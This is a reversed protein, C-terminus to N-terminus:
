LDFCKPYTLLSLIDKLCDKWLEKILFYSGDIEFPALIGLVNAQISDLRGYFNPDGLSSIYPYGSTKATQELRKLLLTGM